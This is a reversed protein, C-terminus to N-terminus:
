LAKVASEYRRLVQRRISISDNIRNLLLDFLASYLARALTDRGDLAKYLMSAIRFTLSLCFM